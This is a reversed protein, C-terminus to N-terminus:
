EPEWSSPDAPNGGLYRHGDMVTQGPVLGNQGATADPASSELLNGGSELRHKMEQLTRIGVSPDVADFTPFMREIQKGESETVSGQGKMLRQREMLILKTRAADYEERLKANDTGMFHGITRGVESGVYPGVGGGNKLKEYADLARTAADIGEQNGNIAPGSGKIPVWEPGNPGTKLYADKNKNLTMKGPATAAAPTGDPNIAVPMTDKADLPKGTMANGRLYDENSGQQIMAGGVADNVGSALQSANGGGGYIMGLRDRLAKSTTDYEVIAPDSPALVGIGKPVIRADQALWESNAARQQRQSQENAMDIKQQDEANKVRATEAERASKRALEDMQAQRLANQSAIGSQYAQDRMLRSQSAGGGGSMAAGLAQGLSNMPASVDPASGWSVDLRPM